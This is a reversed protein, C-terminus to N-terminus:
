PQSRRMQFPVSEIVGAILFSWRYDSLAAERLIKRVAPMDYSEVERGLAYTLLKETVTQVVQESRSLLVKRLEAPGQFRTGDPLVGSADITRGGETTRWRGVGDFNELAFGIPDMQAHCSACAPNSRHAEIRQRMTLDQVEERKENLAPVEPPPPPPPTGLLNELVWKGRLVPATRNARSTVTLFSGQGLLGHRNQDALRVRRFHSGYINPIGYHRALRENLFTYDADLLDLVSHDERLMSNFFLETEQRLAQRLEDDFEPYVGTNPSVLRLNRLYLWQGAFNNVLAQSRRDAMMRGIQQQLVGPDRLNGSEVVELLPDDPISSWLFFSLRSALELDSVQYATDPEIDPPDREIRFLFGPSVLLGQLATRIGGEFSEQSRGARYLSLLPQIDEDSVPRRYARRALRSLIKEACSEEENQATPSCVFIRRRSPTDGVGTANYPGTITVTGIGPDGGKYNGTDGAMQRPGVEMMGEPEYSKKRFVVGVLRGGAKAQFRGELDGGSLYEYEQQAPDGIYINGDRTHLAGSAGHREGGVMFSQIRAGDLFVDLQHPEGLLGRLYYNGDMQLQIKIHYEGDAAFNHRIAIGGRSGFPVDESVREDQVTILSGRNGRLNEAAQYTEGAPPIAPDGVVLRSIKVAASMYREMLVPSVSLLAGLNDFGKGSDEAPFLSEGDISVELLDRVANAYEVRNLRHVVPRGPDPKAASAMDLARELYTALSDYTAQDPRPMGAPPMAGTRLKRVVKEWMEPELSIKEVDAKDLLLGATGVAENHCGVCYSNLVTRYQAGPLPASSSPQSSTTVPLSVPNSLQSRATQHYGVGLFAALISGLIFKRLTTRRRM